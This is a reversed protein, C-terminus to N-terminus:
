LAINKEKGVNTPALLEKQIVIYKKKLCDLEIVYFVYM